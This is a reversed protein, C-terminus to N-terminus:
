SLLKPGVPTEHIRIKRTRSPWHHSTSFTESVACHRAVMKTTHCTPYTCSESPLTLANHSLTAPSSDDLAVWTKEISSEGVLYFIIGVDGEM